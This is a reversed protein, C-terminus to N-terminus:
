LQASPPKGISMMTIGFEDTEELWMESRRDMMVGPDIGALEGQLYGSDDWRALWRNYLTEWQERTSAQWLWKAASAPMFGLEKCDFSPICNWVSYSWRLLCLSLVARRKSTVNIWAQWSPRVHDREEQLVLGARAVHYVVRSTTSRSPFLLMITYIVLTPETYETSFVNRRKLLQPKFSKRRETDNGMWMKALTFCNALPLPLAKNSFHTTHILPPLQIEDAMMRPWTRLVRFLFEMSHKALASNPTESPWLSLMWQKTAHTGDSDDLTTVASSRTVATTTDPYAQHPNTLQDTGALLLDILSSTQYEEASTSVGAIIEHSAEHKSFSTAYLCRCCGPRQLDCRTKAVSCQSCSIQRLSPGQPQTCKKLHRILSSKDSTRGASEANSGGTPVRSNMAAGPM